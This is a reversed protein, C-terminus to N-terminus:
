WTAQQFENFDTIPPSYPESCLVDVVADFSFDLLEIWHLRPVLVKMGPVMLLERMPRNQPTVRLLFSGASCGIVQDCTRHAHGGRRAGVPVSRIEFARVAAFPLRWVHVLGREDAVKQSELIGAALTMEDECYWRYKAHDM